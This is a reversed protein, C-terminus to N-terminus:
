PRDNTYGLERALLELTLVLMGRAEDRSFARGNWRWHGVWSQVSEGLGLVHWCLSGGPSGLGGVSDVARLVRERAAIQHDGLPELRGNGPVRCLDQAKLTELGAITFAAEFDRAAAEMEPTITGKRLMTGITDVTRYHVAPRGDPDAEYVPEATRGDPLTQRPPLSNTPKARKKTARM